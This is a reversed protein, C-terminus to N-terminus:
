PRSSKPRALARFAASTAAGFVLHASLDKWLAGPPYEWMPKYVGAPALLAYSAGWAAAGTVLGARPPAASLFTSAVGHAAGWGAGTLLHVANNMARASQPPLERHLYGEVIVKGVQAPAGAQDYSTTGASSEWALFGDQGGDRRYRRYWLLDMVMTGALGAVAGKLVATATTARTSTITRMDTPDLHRAGLNM